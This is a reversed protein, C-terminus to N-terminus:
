RWYKKRLECLFDYLYINNNDVTMGFLSGPHFGIYDQFSVIDKKEESEANMLDFLHSDLGCCYACYTSYSIESDLEKELGDLITCFYVFDSSYFVDKVRNLEENCKEDLRQSKIKNEKVVKFDIGMYSILKNM